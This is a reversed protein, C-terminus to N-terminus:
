RPWHYWNGRRIKTLEEKSKPPLRYGRAVLEELTIEGEEVMRLQMQRCTGCIGCSEAFKISGADKRKKTRRKIREECFLCGLSMSRELTNGV